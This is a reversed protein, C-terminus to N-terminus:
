ADASEGAVAAEIKAVDIKRMTMMAEFARKAVDGVRAMAETIRRENGELDGRLMDRARQQQLKFEQPSQRVVEM